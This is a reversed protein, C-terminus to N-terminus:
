VAVGRKAHVRELVFYGDRFRDITDKLVRVSVWGSVPVESLNASAENVLISINYVCFCIFYSVSDHKFGEIKQGGFIGSGGM